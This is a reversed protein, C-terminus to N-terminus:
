AIVRWELPCPSTAWAVPLAFRDALREPTVTVTADGAALRDLIARRTPDALAAFTADLQRASRMWLGEAYGMPEM